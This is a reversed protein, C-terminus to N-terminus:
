ISPDISTADAKATRAALLKLLLVEGGLLIGGGVV